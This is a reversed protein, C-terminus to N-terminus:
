PEICLSRNSGPACLPDGDVPGAEVVVEGRLARGTGARVVYPHPGTDLFAVAVSGARSTVVHQGRHDELDLAVLVSGPAQWRVRTGRQVNVHAPTVDDPTVAIVVETGAALAFLAAVM